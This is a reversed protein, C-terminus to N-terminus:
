RKTAGDMVYPYIYSHGSIMQNEGVLKNCSLVINIYQKTTVIDDMNYKEIVDECTNWVTDGKEATIMTYEVHQEDMNIYYALSEHLRRANTIKLFMIACISFLVLALIALEMSRNRRKNRM